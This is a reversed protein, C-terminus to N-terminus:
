MVIVADDQLPLRVSLLFIFPVTDKFGTPQVGWLFLYNQVDVSKQPNYNGAVDSLM